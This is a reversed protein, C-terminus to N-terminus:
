FIFLDFYDVEFGYNFIIGFDLKLIEVDDNVLVIKLYNNVFVCDDDSGKNDLDWGIEVGIVLLCGGDELYLM